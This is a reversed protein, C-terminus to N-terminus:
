VMRAGRHDQDSRKKAVLHGAKSSNEKLFHESKTVKEEGATRAGFHTQRV